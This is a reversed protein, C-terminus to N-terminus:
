RLCSRPPRKEIPRIKVRMSRFGPHELRIDTDVVPADGRRIHALEHFVTHWFNDIRDHKVSVAIVPSREDLWFTAGDLKGGPLPEVVVFRIGYKALAKPLHRVEKPYAALERLEREVKPLLAADFTPVQLSVEALERAACM